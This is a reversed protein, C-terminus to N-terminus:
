GRNEQFKGICMGILAEEIKPSLSGQGIEVDVDQKTEDKVPQDDVFCKWDIRVSDGRQAPRNVELPVFSAHQAQLKRIYAEVEDRPVNAPTKDIAM